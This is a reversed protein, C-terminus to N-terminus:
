RKSIQITGNSDFEIRITRLNNLHYIYMIWEIFNLEYFTPYPISRNLNLELTRDLEVKSM